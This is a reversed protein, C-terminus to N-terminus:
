IGHSELGLFHIKKCKMGKWTKWSEFLGQKIFQAFIDQPQFYKSHVVDAELQELELQKM